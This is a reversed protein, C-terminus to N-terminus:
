AGESTANIQKMSADSNAPPCESVEEVVDKLRMLVEDERLITYKDGAHMDFEFENGAYRTILVRDGIEYDIPLYGLGDERVRGRGVAVVTGRMPVERKDQPIHLSGFMQAGSDRRVLLRDGMVEVPFPIEVDTPDREPAEDELANFVSPPDVFPTDQEAGGDIILDEESM